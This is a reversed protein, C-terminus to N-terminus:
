GVSSFVAEDFVGDVEAQVVGNFDAVSDLGEGGGAAVGGVLGGDQDRGDLGGKNAGGLSKRFGIIRCIRAEKQNIHLQLLFILQVPVLYRPNRLLKNIPPNILNVVLIFILIVKHKLHIDTKIINDFHLLHCFCLGGIM